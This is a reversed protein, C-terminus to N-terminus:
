TTSVTCNGGGCFVFLYPRKEEHSDLEIVLNRSGTFYLRFDIKDADGTLSKEKLLCNISFITSFYRKQLMSKKWNFYNIKLEQTQFLEAHIIQSLSLSRM